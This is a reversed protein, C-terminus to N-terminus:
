SNTQVNQEKSYQNIIKEVERFMLGTIWMIENLSAGSRWYGIIASREYQNM